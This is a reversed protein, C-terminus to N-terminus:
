WPIKGVLNQLVKLFDITYIILAINNSDIRTLYAIYIIHRWKMLNWVEMLSNCNISVPVTRLSSYVTECVVVM